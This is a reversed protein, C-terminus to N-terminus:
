ECRVNWRPDTIDIRPSSAVHRLLHDAEFWYPDRHTLNMFLRDHAREIVRSSWKYHNVKLIASDLARGQTDHLGTQIPCSARMLPVKNPCAVLLNQTLDARLPFQEPLPRADVVPFSGDAALRDILRGRVFDAGAVRCHDLLAPLPESLEVLEDLDAVLIWEEPTTHRVRLRDLAAYTRPAHFGEDIVAGVLFDYGQAREAIRALFDAQGAVNVLAVVRSVGLSRYHELFHPLLHCDGYLSTFLQM